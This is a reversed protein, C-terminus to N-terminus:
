DDIFEVIDNPTCGIIKCLREVMLMTINENKKLRSLTKNDIGNQLLYYQSVEKRAMIEWLPKYSIMIM